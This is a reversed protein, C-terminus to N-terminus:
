FVFVCFYLFMSTFFDMSIREEKEDLCNDFLASGSPVAPLQAPVLEGEDELHDLRM